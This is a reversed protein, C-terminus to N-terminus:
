IVLFDVKAMNKDARVRTVIARACVDATKCQALVIHGIEPANKLTACKQSSRDIREIWNQWENYRRHPYVYIVRHDEVHTIFVRDDKELLVISPKYTPKQVPKPPERCEGNTKMSQSLFDLKGPQASARKDPVDKTPVMPEVDIKQDPSKYALNTSREVMKTDNKAGTDLKMTNMSKSLNETCNQPLPILDAPSKASIGIADVVDSSHIEVTSSAISPVNRINSRSVM